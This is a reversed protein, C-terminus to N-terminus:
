YGSLVHSVFKELLQTGDVCGLKFDLMLQPM